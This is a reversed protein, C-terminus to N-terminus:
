TQKNKKEGAGAGEEEARKRKHFHSELNSHLEAKRPAPITPRDHNGGVVDAADAPLIRIFDRKRGGRGWSHGGGEFDQNGFM